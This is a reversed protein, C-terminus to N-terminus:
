KSKAPNGFVVQHAEVNRLVVSGMGIVAKEGITIGQKLVASSGIFVGNSLTVNGNVIAGTSIHCHDGVRSEHEVLAHNNIICNVGIEADAQLSVGHFIISGEGISAFKSVHSFPSIVTAFKAGLKKLEDYVQQRKDSSNLQGIGILFQNGQIYNPLVEDNGLYPIGFKKDLYPEFDVYGVLNFQSSSLLIDLCSKAHGGGGILILNEM